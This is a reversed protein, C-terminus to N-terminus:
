RPQQVLQSPLIQSNNLSQSTQVANSLLQNTGFLQGLPQTLELFFMPSLPMPSSNIGQSFPLQSPGLNKAM